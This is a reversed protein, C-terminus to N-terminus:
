MISSIFIYLQSQNQIIFFLLFFSKVTKNNIDAQCQVFVYYYITIRTKYSANKARVPKPCSSSALLAMFFYNSCLTEYVLHWVSNKRNQM